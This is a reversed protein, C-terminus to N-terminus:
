KGISVTIYKENKPIKRMWFRSRVIRATSVAPATKFYNVADSTSLGKIDSIVTSENFILHARGKIKVDLTISGEIADSSTIDYTLDLDKLDAERGGNNALYRNIVRLVDNPDFALVSTTARVTVVLEDAAEGVGANYEPKSVVPLSISATQLNGLQQKMSENFGSLATASASAIAKDFDSQAVVKANGIFGGSMSAISVGYFNEVGPKGKFASVVFKNPPINFEQGPRDAAVSTEISGKAPVNISELIRFIVGKDSEFRTTAVFKQDTSTSNYITLKGKAKEAVVKTDSTAVTVKVENAVQLDKAPIKNAEPDIETLSKLASLRVTFDVDGYKLTVFVKANGPMLAYAGGALLAIIIIPILFFKRPTKKKFEFDKVPKKTGSEPDQVKEEEAWLREIDTNHSIQPAPVPSPLPAPAPEPMPVPAPRVVIPEPTPMPRIEQPQTPEPVPQPEPEPVPEPAPEPVPEPIQEPLVEPVFDNKPVEDKEPIDEDPEDDVVDQDQDDEAGSRIPVSEHVERVKKISLKTDDEHSVIDRIVHGSPQVDIIGPVVVAKAPRRPVSALRAVSDVPDRKQPQSLLEIDNSTALRAIIPDSTMISLTKDGQDAENKLATIYASEKSFVSGKPFIMIIESADTSTLAVLVEDFTDNKQINIIKTGAM